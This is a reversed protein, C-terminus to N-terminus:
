EREGIRIDGTGRVRHDVKSVLDLPRYASASGPQREGTAVLAAM